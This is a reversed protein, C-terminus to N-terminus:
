KWGNLNKILSNHISPYIKQVKGPAIWVGRADEKKHACNQRICGVLATDYRVAHDPIIFDKNYDYLTVLSDVTIPQNCWACLISMNGVCDLCYNPNGNDILPIEWCIKKHGDYILGKRKTIHGCKNAQYTKRFPNTTITWWIQITFLVEGMM